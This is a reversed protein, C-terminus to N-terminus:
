PVSRRGSNIGICEALVSFKITQVAAQASVAGSKVAGSIQQHDFRFGLKEAVKIIGVRVVNGALDAHYIFQPSRPTPNDSTNTISPSM